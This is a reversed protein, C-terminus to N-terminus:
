MSFPQLYSVHKLAENTSQLAKLFDSMSRANEPADFAGYLDVFEKATDIEYVSLDVKMDLGSLQRWDHINALVHSSHQGNLRWIEGTNKVHAYAWMFPIVRKKNLIENRLYQVRRENLPREGLFQQMSSIKIALDKTANMSKHSALKIAM